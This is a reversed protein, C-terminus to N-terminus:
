EESATEAKANETAAEAKADKSAAEGALRVIAEAYIQALLVLDDVPIKENKQHGLEPKGPFRAGFAVIGDMARAYTGGGIVTPQNEQDGTVERYVELLASIIPGNKDMYIPHNEETLTVTM